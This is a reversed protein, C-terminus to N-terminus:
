TEFLWAVASPMDSFAKFPLQMTNTTKLILNIYFQKFPNRDMIVAGKKLGGDVAKKIAYDKFWDKKEVSSTGQNRIDSLFYDAPTKAHWELITNFVEKYEEFSTLKKWHLYCIKTDTFFYAMAYPRHLVVEPAKGLIELEEASEM